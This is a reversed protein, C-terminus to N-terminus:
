SIEWSITITFTKDEENLLAKYKGGYYSTITKDNLLDIAEQAGFVASLTPKAQNKCGEAGEGTVIYKYTYSSYSLVYVDAGSESKEMTVTGSYDAETSITYAGSINKKSAAEKTYSTVESKVYRFTNEEIKLTEICDIKIGNEDTNKRNIYLDDDQILSSSSTNCGCLLIITSLFLLPKQIKM